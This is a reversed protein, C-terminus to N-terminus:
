DCEFDGNDLPSPNMPFQQSYELVFTGDGNGRYIELLGASSVALDTFGDGDEIFNGAAIGFARSTSGQREVPVHVFTGDGNGLHVDFPGPGNPAVVFDAIEDNNFGRCVLIAVQLERDTMHYRSKLFLWQKEDLLIGPPRKFLPDKPTVNKDTPQASM